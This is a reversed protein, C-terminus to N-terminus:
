GIKRLVSIKGFDEVVLRQMDRDIFVKGCTCGVNDRPVSPLIGGCSDCRYHIDHDRPIDATSKYSDGILEFSATKM